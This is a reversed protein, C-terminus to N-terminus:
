RGIAIYDLGNISNSGSASNQFYFTAGATGYSVRQAWIDKNSAAGSNVAVPIARFCETPFTTPFTVAVSGQAYAGTIGGWQLIIGGPGKWYGNASLGAVAATALALPTIASADDTGAAVQAASAKPVTITRDASLNGGGTALGATLIQLTTPVAGGGTGVVGAILAVIADYLQADNGKELDIGAQEVTYCIAEQIANLWDYAILTAIQGIAPNGPQFLGSVAGSSDIRHM